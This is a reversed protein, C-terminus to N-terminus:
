KANEIVIPLKGEGHQRAEEHQERVFTMAFMLVLLALVATLATYHVHVHIRSHTQRAWALCM